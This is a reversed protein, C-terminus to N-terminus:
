RLDITTKAKMDGWPYLAQGKEPDIFKSIVNDANIWECTYGAAKCGLKISQIVNAPSCNMWHAAKTPTSFYWIEYNNEIKIMRM